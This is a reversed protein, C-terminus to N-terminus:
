VSQLFERNTKTRSLQDRLFKLAGQKDLDAIKRRVQFIKDNEFEDLLKEEQRTGSAGIDIAPYLRREALERDLVLECNGTGKFEQFIVEDMRSGTDILTSAIVTLSGGGEFNRATGFLQRPRDLAGASLGGSLTRGSHNHTKNYTRALRTLSDLLILVDQGNLLRELAEQFVDEAVRVHNDPHQDISSAEVRIPMNRQFDTVEEVREDVLLAIQYVDPHNEHVAKCVKQLVTTKGARPPSPILVRQGKGVPAVLDILRGTMEDPETELRLREEPAIATHDSLRDLLESLEENSPDGQNNSQNQRKRGQRRGM